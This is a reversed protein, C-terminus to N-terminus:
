MNVILSPRNGVLPLVQSPMLFTYSEEFSMLILIKLSYICANLVMYPCSLCLYKGMSNCDQCCM